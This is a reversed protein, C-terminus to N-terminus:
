EPREQNQGIGTVLVNPLRPRESHWVLGAPVAFSIRSVGQGACGCRFGHGVGWFRDRDAM